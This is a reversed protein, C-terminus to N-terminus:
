AKHFVPLTPVAPTVPNIRWDSFIAPIPSRHLASVTNAQSL